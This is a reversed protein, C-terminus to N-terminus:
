PTCRSTTRVSAGVSSSPRSIDSIRSCRDERGKQASSYKEGRTLGGRVELSSRVAPLSPRFVTSSQFLLPVTHSLLILTCGCGDPSSGCSGAEPCGSSYTGGESDAPPHRCACVSASTRDRAPM